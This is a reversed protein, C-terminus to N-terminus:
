KAEEVFERIVSCNNRMNIISLALDHNEEIWLDDFILWRSFSSTSFLDETGDGFESIVEIMHNSETKSVKSPLGYSANGKKEASVINDTLTLQPNYQNSEQLKALQYFHGAQQIPKNLFQGLEPLRLNEIKLVQNGYLEYENEYYVIYTSGTANGKVPYTPIEIELGDSGHQTPMEDHFWLAVKDFHNEKFYEDFVMWVLMVEDDGTRVELIHENGRALPGDRDHRVKGDSILEDVSAPFSDPGEAVSIQSELSWPLCYKTTDCDHGSHIRSSCSHLDSWNKGLWEIVSSGNDIHLHNMRPFYDCFYAIYIADETNETVPYVNSQQATTEVNISFVLWLVIIIVRM